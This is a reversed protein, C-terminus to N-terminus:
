LHLFRHREEPAPLRCADIQGFWRYRHSAVYDYLPDRIFRPLIVGVWLLSWPLGLQRLVQLAATSRQLAQGDSVLAFSDLTDIPLDHARLLSRGVDSELTAFRFSQRRDHAMIFSVWRDCLGCNGEYLVIPEDAM